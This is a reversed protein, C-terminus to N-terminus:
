RGRRTLPRVQFFDGDNIRESELLRRYYFNGVVMCGPEKEEIEEYVIAGDDFGFADGFKISVEELNANPPIQIALCKEGFKGFVTSDAKGSSFGANRSAFGDPRVTSIGGSRRPTALVDREIKALAETLSEESGSLSNESESLTRSDFDDLGNVFSIFNTDKPGDWDLSVSLESSLDFDSDHVSSEEEAISGSINKSADLESEVDSESLSEVESASDSFEITVKRPAPVPKSPHPIKSKQPAVKETRVKELPSASVTPKPTSVKEKKTETLVKEAPKPTEKKGGRVFINGSRKTEPVETTHAGDDFILISSKTGPTSSPKSLVRGECFFISRPGM